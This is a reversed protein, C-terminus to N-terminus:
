GGLVLVKNSGAFQIEVIRKTGDPATNYVVADTQNPTSREVVKAQATAVVHRGQSLTMTAEPSRAEWAVVYYGAKVQQGNLTAAYPFLIRPSKALAGTATVLALGLAIKSIQMLKQFTM